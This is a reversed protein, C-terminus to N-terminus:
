PAAKKYMIVVAGPQQDIAVPLGVDALERGTMVTTGPVDINTLAYSADPDLGQLRFHAALYISERRRFAQVIGEGSEPRDFQWAIWVDDALSYPTLPYFDGLLCPALKRWDDVVRRFHAWDTGEKRVDTCFGFAPCYHSRVSYILDDNSYYVGQGYYPVWSSLGYTHCQNGLAYQPDGAFSQYDSRLLPIARRLTELDNRRGGSACSDILMGPHRRRLEDWYALYGEVHRIETIGQRDPADAARWYALPDM